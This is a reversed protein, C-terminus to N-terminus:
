YNKPLNWKSWPFVSVLFDKLSLVCKTKRLSTFILTPPVTARHINLSSRLILPSVFMNFDSRKSTAAPWFSEPIPFTSTVTRNAYLFLPYRGEKNGIRVMITVGEIHCLPQFPPINPFRTEFCNDICQTLQALNSIRWTQGGMSDALAGILPNQGQDGLVITYLRKM